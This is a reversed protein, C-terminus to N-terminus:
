KGRKTKETNMEKLVKILKNMVYADGNKIILDKDSDWNLQDIALSFQEEAIDLLVFYYTMREKHAREYMAQYIRLDQELEKKTKAM